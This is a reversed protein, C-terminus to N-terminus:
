RLKQFLVNNELSPCNLSREEIQYALTNTIFSSNLPDRKMNNIIGELEQNEENLAGDINDNKNSGTRNQLSSNNNLANNEPKQSSSRNKNDLTAM